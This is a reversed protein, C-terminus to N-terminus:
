SSPYVWGFSQNSTLIQRRHWTARSYCVNSRGLAPLSHFTKGKLWAKGLGLDELPTERQRLQLSLRQGEARYHGGPEGYRPPSLQEIDDVEWDGDRAQSGGFGTHRKPKGQRNRSISSETEQSNTTDRIKSGRGVGWMAITTLGAAHSPWHALQPGAPPFLM